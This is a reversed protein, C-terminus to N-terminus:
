RGAAEEQGGDPAAGPRPALRLLRRMMKGTATIPLSPTFVIRRPAVHPSIRLRVHAILAAALRDDPTVGPRLVVHAVVAETRIPDPEGVAAAMAVAPHATLCDEIETPGIRYGSSTIVDDTRASFFLCGDADIRGEDGTRMWDGAFKEATKEPQNWYRLFMSAGGRRVGIEGTAGVPLPRGAGDLIALDYGPCPRGFSGPKPAALTACNVAVMNCETQGYYENITVNLATRGWDLL